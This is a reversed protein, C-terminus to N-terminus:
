SDDDHVEVPSRTVARVIDLREMPTLKPAREVVLAYLATAGGDDQRVVFGCDDFWKGIVNLFAAVDQRRTSHLTRDFDRMHNIVASIIDHGDDLLSGIVDSLRMGSRSADLAPLAIGPVFDPAPSPPMMPPQVWVPIPVGSLEALGFGSVIGDGDATIAPLTDLNQAPQLVFDAYHRNDQAELIDMLKDVDREYMNCIHALEDRLQLPTANPLELAERLYDIFTM